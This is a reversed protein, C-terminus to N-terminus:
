VVFCCVLWFLDDDDDIMMMAKQSRRAVSNYRAAHIDNRTLALDLVFDMGYISM